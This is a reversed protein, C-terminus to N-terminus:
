LNVEVLFLPIVWRTMRFHSFFGCTTVRNLSIPKLSSALLEAFGEGGALTEHSGTWETHAKLHHKIRNRKQIVIM